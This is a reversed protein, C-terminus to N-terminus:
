CKVFMGRSTRRVIGRELLTNLVLECTTSDLGWLRQAQVRTVCMGPMERYEGEVRSLVDRLVAAEASEQPNDNETAKM